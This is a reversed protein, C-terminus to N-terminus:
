NFQEPTGAIDALKVWGQEGTLSFQAISSGLCNWRWVGSHYEWLLRGQYISEYGEQDYRCTVVSVVTDDDLWEWHTNKLTRFNDSFDAPLYDFLRAQAQQRQNEIICSEVLKLDGKRVASLM